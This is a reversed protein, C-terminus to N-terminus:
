AHPCSYRSSKRAEETQRCTAQATVSKLARGAVIQITPLGAAAAAARLQEADGM